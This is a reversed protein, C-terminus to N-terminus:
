YEDDMTNLLDDDEDEDIDYTSETEVLLDDEIIPDDIVDEILDLDGVEEELEDGIKIEEEDYSM